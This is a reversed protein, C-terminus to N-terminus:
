SHVFCCSSPPALATRRTELGIASAHLSCCQTRVQVNSNVNSKAAVLRTGAAGAWGGLLAGWTHPLSYLHQQQCQLQVAWCPM